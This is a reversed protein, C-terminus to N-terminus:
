SKESDDSQRRQRWTNWLDRANESSGRSETEDGYELFERRNHNGGGHELKAYITLDKKYGEFDDIRTVNYYRDNYHVYRIRRYDDWWNVIFMVDVDEWIRRQRFVEDGSMQRYYAWAKGPHLPIYRRFNFGQGDPEADLLKYLTVKKDKLKVRRPTNNTNYQYRSM